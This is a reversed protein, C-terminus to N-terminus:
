SEISGYFFYYGDFKYGFSSMWDTMLRFENDARNKLITPPDECFRVATFFLDLPCNEEFHSTFFVPVYIMNWPHELDPMWGLTVKIVWKDMIKVHLEKTLVARNLFSEDYSGDLVEMLWIIVAYDNSLQLKDTDFKTYGGKPEDKLYSNRRKAIEHWAEQRITPLDAQINRCIEGLTEYTKFPSDDILEGDGNFVFEDM